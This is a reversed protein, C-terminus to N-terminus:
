RIQLPSNGEFPYKRTFGDMADWPRKFILPYEETWENITKGAIIEMSIQRGKIGARRM